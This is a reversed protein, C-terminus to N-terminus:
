AGLGLGHYPLTHYQLHESTIKLTNWTQLRTSHFTIYHYLHVVMVSTIQTVNGLHIYLRCPAQQIPATSVTQTPLPGQPLQAMKPSVQHAQPCVQSQATQVPLNPISFVTRRLSDRTFTAHTHAHTCTHKHKHTNIEHLLMCPGSVGVCGCVWNIYDHDKDRMLMFQGGVSCGGGGSWLALMNSHLCIMFATYGVWQCLWELSKKTTFCLNYSM